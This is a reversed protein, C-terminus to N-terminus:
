VIIYIVLFNRETLVFSCYCALLCIATSCYAYRVDYFSAFKCIYLLSQCTDYTCLLVHLVFMQKNYVYILTLLKYYVFM